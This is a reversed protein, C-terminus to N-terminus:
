FVKDVGLKSNKFILVTGALLPLQPRRVAYPRSRHPATRPRKRRGPQLLLYGAEQQLRYVDVFQFFARCLTCKTYSVFRAMEYGRGTTRGKLVNGACQL